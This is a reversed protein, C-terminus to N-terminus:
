FDEDLLFLDCTDDQNSGIAEENCICLAAILNLFRSNKKVLACNEVINRIM